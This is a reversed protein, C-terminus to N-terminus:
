YLVSIDRAVTDGVLQLFLLYGHNSSKMAIDNEYSFLRTGNTTVLAALWPMNTLTKEKLFWTM